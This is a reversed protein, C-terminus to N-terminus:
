GWSLIRLRTALSLRISHSQIKSFIELDCMKIENYKNCYCSCYYIKQMIEYCQMSNLAWIILITCYISQFHMRMLLFIILYISFYMPNWTHNPVMKRWRNLFFVYELSKIWKCIDEVLEYSPTRSNLILGIKVLVSILEFYM